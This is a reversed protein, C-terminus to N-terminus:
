NWLGLAVAAVAGALFVEQVNVIAGSSPDGGSANGSSGNGNSGNSSGGNGSGTGSGTGAGTGSGTGAGTGSGTGTGTGTPSASNTRTNTSGVTPAATGTGSGTGSGTATGTAVDDVNTGDTPSPGTATGSGSGTASCSEGLAANIQEMISEPTVSGAEAVCNLCTTFSGSPSSFYDCVCTISTCASVETILANCPTECAPPLGSGDFIGDLQRVLLHPISGAVVSQAAVALLAVVIETRM